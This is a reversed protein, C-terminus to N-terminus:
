FGFDGLRQLPSRPIKTWKEKEHGEEFMNFTKVQRKWTLYNESVEEAEGTMRSFGTEDKGILFFDGNQFRFVYTPGGTDGSGASRFTSIGIRLTGRDTVDLSKEVSTFEDCNPILDLYKKFLAFGGDPQGFYIALQPMNMNYVYGDEREKMHEKFNPTAIIVVDQLGDKNMDGLAESHEWGDPVIAEVSAGRQKLTQAMSLVPALLLAAILLNKMSMIIQQKHNKFGNKNKANGRKSIKKM